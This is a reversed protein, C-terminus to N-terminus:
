STFVTQYFIGDFNSLPMPKRYLTTCFIPRKQVVAKGDATKFARVQARREGAVEAVTTILQVMESVRNTCCGFM